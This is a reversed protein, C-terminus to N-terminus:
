QQVKTKRKCKAAILKVLFYVGYICMIMGFMCFVIIFPSLYPAINEPLAGFPDSVMSFWNFNRPEGDVIQGSYAYNGILAFVALGVLGLLDKYCKKWELKIDGFVLACVGYAIMLSHYLLTQIIRYCFISVEGTAVGSPNFVYLIAGLMGMLAFTTKMKGIIRNHRSAFCAISMLTCIHFPLKDTDISGRSFPMIFFDLAYLIIAGNICINIILQKTKESKNRFFFVVFMLVSIFLLLFLIHWINYLGFPTKGAPKDEFLNQFFYYM